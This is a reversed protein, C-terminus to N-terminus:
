NRQKTLALNSYRSCAATYEQYHDMKSPNGHSYVVWAVQRENNFSEIRGLEWQTSDDVAHEPVYWVTRGIDDDTLNFINSM